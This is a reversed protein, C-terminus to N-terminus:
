RSDRSKGPLLRLIRFYLDACLFFVHDGVWALPLYAITEETHDLRDFKNANRASIVLNDFSLMVGKPRGTTGSTYLMVALDEGKGAAIRKDIQESAGQSLAKEGSAVVDPIAHLNTHDYDRLGRPEDYIVKTLQKLEESISLVKDVQEQDQCVAFKVEAHNLVYAMEEAVSDSYVPVPIAGVSQVAAFTWYLWPRNQGVIAVKDGEELGLELLGAAFKRVQERVEAWTWSQWIGMDKHRMAFRDSFRKANLELYKPFTDPKTVLM